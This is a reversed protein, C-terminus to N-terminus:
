TDGHLAALNLPCHGQVLTDLVDMFVSGDIGEVNSTDDMGDLTSRLIDTGDDGDDLRDCTEGALAALNDVGFGEMWPYTEIVVRAARDASHATREPGADASCAGLVLLAAVM